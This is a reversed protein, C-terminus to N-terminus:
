RQVLLFLAWWVQNSHWCSWNAHFLTRNLWFLVEILDDFSAVGKLRGVCITHIKYAVIAIASAAATATILAGIACFAVLVGIKIDVLTSFGTGGSLKMIHEVPFALL